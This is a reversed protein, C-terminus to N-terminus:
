PFPAPLFIAWFKMRWTRVLKTPAGKTSATQAREFGKKLSLASVDSLNGTFAEAAIDLVVCIGLDFHHRIAM